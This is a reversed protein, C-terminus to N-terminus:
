AQEEGLRKRLDRVYTEQMKKLNLFRGATLRLFRNKIQINEAFVIRTGGGPLAMFRGSWFGMIRKNELNLEYRECPIQKIIQFTTSFGGSSYEVFELGGKMVRVKKIDSRWETHHNDTVVDWVDQPASTFDATVVSRKM